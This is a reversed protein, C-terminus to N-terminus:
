FNYSVSIGSITNAGYDEVTYYRMQGRLWLNTVVQYSALLDIAHREFDGFSPSYNMSLELNDNLLRYRGGVSLTVYKYRVTSIESNYYNANFNSSLSRTWYSNLTFSTSFYNADNNYFSNDERNSSMFSISSNHRVKLNFDYGLNLSMRNTIDSIRKLYNLTDTMGIGNDNRNNTYSLTINPMDHRMFLSVSARLTKFTTTTIKTGQLNDNLKEYGISFFLQNDLTRFRDSINIGAIDTRTYEQGFSQFQNGRYIYSGKLNNNFYNLELSGEGALSSLEEVNLPEIFQNVTFFPSLINKIRKFNDSSSGLEDGSAFITDIQEDSYTGSTIDSNIVSVAGVGKFIIRQDDLALRFDTSAILNEEPRSGFEISNVDDIAHLFSVGFDFGNQSGVGIRGSLLKRSHVGFEVMGFPAGYKTSDIRVVNTQLPTNDNSYTNLLNGEIERRVDGFSGQIHFYGFDIKADVGRLRKGNLILNNYRPYTDGGRLKLWSSSASISYRNQPQVSNNEESTIYGYGKFKWNDVTSNLTIAFNNYLTSVDNFAENRLEGIISGGFKFERGMETVVYDDVVTFNRKASYYLGGDKDYVEIELNQDGNKISGEFNQPYYLLLEGAFIVNQSVDEGNLIIKTKKIDVEDPANILSISIFLDNLSLIENNSPSLIIIERDKETKASVTLDIPRAVEPIGLPYTERTGNKLEVILYYSLVPPSIDESSIQYTAIDGQLEMERVRFDTEHFSKYVFQVRNISSSNILLVKVNASNADKLEGFSISSITNSIQAFSLESQFLSILLVIGIKVLLETSKLRM